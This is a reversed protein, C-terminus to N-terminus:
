PSPLNTEMGFGNTWLPTDTQVLAAHIIMNCVDGQWDNQNNSLTNSHISFKYKMQIQIYQTGTNITTDGFTPAPAFPIKLINESLEKFTINDDHNSDLQAIIDDLSMEELKFEGFATKKYLSIEISNVVIDDLWNGVGSQNTDSSPGARWKFPDITFNWNDPDNPDFNVFIDGDDDEYCKFEFGIETHNAPLTGINLIKMHGEANDGVPELGPYAKGYLIWQGDASEEGDRVYVTLTGAHVQNNEISTDSIFVAWTGYGAGAVVLGILLLAVAISKM